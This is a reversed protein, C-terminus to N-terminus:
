GLPRTGGPSSGREVQQLLSDSRDDDLFIIVRAKM